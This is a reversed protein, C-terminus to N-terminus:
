CGLGTKNPGLLLCRPLNPKRRGPALAMKRRLLDGEDVASTTIMSADNSCRSRNNDRDSSVPSRSAESQSSSRRSVSTIYTEVLYKGAADVQDDHADNAHPKEGSATAWPWRGLRLRPNLDFLPSSRHNVCSSREPQALYLPWCLGCEPFPDKEVRITIGDSLGNSRHSEDGRLFRNIPELDVNGVATPVLPSNSKKISPNRL